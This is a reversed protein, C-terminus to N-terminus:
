PCRRDNRHGTGSPLLGQSPGLVQPEGVVQSDLSSTVSFLHRVAEGDWLDFLEGALEEEPMGAHGALATAVARIGAKRDICAAQVEVRDCTSLVVSRRNGRDAVARRLFRDRHRRCVAPRAFGDLQHPSQCRRDISAEHFALNRGYAGRVSAASTTRLSTLPVEAQEGSDMDRVTAARRAIEDEGLLIAARAKLANARKMRKGLNGSYGLDVAFGARRLQQAIELAPDAAEAGIPIVAIPRAAEAVGEVLMSLREVGAGLRDRTNGAGGDTQHPRRLAARSSPGRPALADTTFEFATHCYYDLGRVLRPNIRYSVGALELGKLLQDFFDRSVDNLSESMLPAEAVIAQDREDKSDLIRLPNRELRDRSDESLSSRYGELYEVLRPATPM